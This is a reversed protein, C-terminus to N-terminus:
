SAFRRRVVAEVTGGQQVHVLDDVHEVVTPRAPASPHSQLRAPRLHLTFPHPHLSRQRLWVV